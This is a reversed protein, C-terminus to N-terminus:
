SYQLEVVKEDNLLKHIAKKHRIRSANITWYVIVCGDKKDYRTTDLDYGKENFYDEYHIDNVSHAEHFCVMYTLTESFRMMLREVRHMLVLVGWVIATCVVALSYNGIGAAMGIAASIWVAAATTLGKVSNTGRFIIGAGLFGVGTVINSAIRTIDSRVTGDAMEGMQQSIITFLASGASVLALTRLGAPKGKRERELGLITGLLAAVLVKLIDDNYIEISGIYM